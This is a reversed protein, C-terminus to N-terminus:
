GLAARIVDADFPIRLRDQLEEVQAHWLEHAQTTGQLLRVALSICGAADQLLLKAPTWAPALMDGPACLFYSPVHAALADFVGASQLSLSLLPRGAAFPEPAQSPDSLDVGDLSALRQRYEGFHASDGPHLRVCLRVPHPSAALAVALEDIMRLQLEHLARNGLGGLFDVAWFLLWPAANALTQPPGPRLLGVAIVRASPARAQFFAAAPPGDALVISAGATGYRTTGWHRLGLPALIWATLRQKLHFALGGERHQTETLGDQVLVPTWGRARAQAILWRQPIGTDSFVVIRVPAVSAAALAQLRHHLRRTTWWGRFLLRLPRSWAAFAPALMPAPVQADAGARYSTPVPLSALLTVAARDALADRLVAAIRFHQPADVFLVVEPKM